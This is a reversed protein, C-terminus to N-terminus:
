AIALQWTFSSGQQYSSHAHIETTGQYPVIEKLIVLSPFNRQFKVRGRM